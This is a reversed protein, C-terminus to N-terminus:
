KIMVPNKQKKYPEKIKDILLIPIQYSEIKKNTTLTDKDLKFEIDSNTDSQWTIPEEKKIKSLIYIICHTYQGFFSEKEENSPIEENLNKILYTLNDIKEMDLKELDAKWEVLKLISYNILARELLHINTEKDNTFFNHELLYNCCELTIDVSSSDYKIKTYNSNEKRM